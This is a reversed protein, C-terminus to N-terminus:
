FIVRKLIAKGEGCNKQMARHKAPVNRRAWVALCDIAMQRIGLFCRDTGMESVRVTKCVIEKVIGYLVAIFEMKTAPSEKGGEHWMGADKRGGEGPDVTDM